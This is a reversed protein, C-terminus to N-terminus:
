ESKAEVSQLHELIDAAVWKNSIQRQVQNFSAIRIGSLSTAVMWKVCWRIHGVHRRGPWSIGIGINRRM